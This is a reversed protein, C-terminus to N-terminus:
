QSAAVPEEGRTAMMLAVKWAGDEQRKVILLTVGSDRIPEGDVGPKPTAVSAYTSWLYGLDGSVETKGADGETTFTYDEPNLGIAEAMAAMGGGEEETKEAGLVHQYLERLAEKGVIPDEHSMIVVADDAYCDLLLEPDGKAWAAAYDESLRNVAAIDETQETMMLDESSGTDRACGSLSLFMITTVLIPRVANDTDM